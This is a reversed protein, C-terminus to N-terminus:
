SSQPVNGWNGRIPLPYGADVQLSSPNSYRIYETGKVVYLKGNLIVEMADFGSKFNEPLDGWEGSDLRKPYGADVEYLDEDSYRAYLPGKTVYTKGNPFQTM